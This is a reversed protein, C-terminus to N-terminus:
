RGYHSYGDENWNSSMISLDKVDVRGDLNLDGSFLRWFIWSFLVVEVTLVITLVTAATKM